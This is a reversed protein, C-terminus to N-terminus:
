LTVLVEQVTSSTNEAGYLSAKHKLPIKAEEKKGQERRRRKNGGEEKNGQERRIGKNGGEETNGQERM